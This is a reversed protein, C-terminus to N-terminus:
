FPFLFFTLTLYFASNHISTLPEPIKFLIIHLRAYVPLCPELFPYPRCQPHHELYPCCPLHFSALDVEMVMLLFPQMLPSSTKDYPHYYPLAPKYFDKSPALSSSILLFSVNFVKSCLLSRIFIVYSSPTIPHGVKSPEQPSKPSPSRRKIDQFDPQLIHIREVERVIHDYRRPPHGHFLDKETVVLLFRLTNAM